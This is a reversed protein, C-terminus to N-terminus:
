TIFNPFFYKSSHKSVVCFFFFFNDLLIWIYEFYIESKVEIHIWTFCRLQDILKLTRYIALAHHTKFTAKDSLNIITQNFPLRVYRSDISVRSWMRSVDTINTTPLQTRNKHKIIYEVFVPWPEPIILKNDM